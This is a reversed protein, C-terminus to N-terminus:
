HYYCYSVSGHTHGRLNDCCRVHRNCPRIYLREQGSTMIMNVGCDEDDGVVESDACNHYTDYMYHVKNKLSYDALSM